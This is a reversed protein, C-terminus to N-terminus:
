NFENGTVITSLEAPEPLDDGYVGYRVFSITGIREIVFVAPLRLPNGTDKGHQYGDAYAQEIHKMTNADGLHAKDKACNVGYAEYVTGEADCIVTYFLRKSNLIEEAGEKSSNVVVLLTSHNDIFLKEQLRLRDLYDQTLVCAADRLFFLITRGQMLNRMQEQQGQLTKVRIDPAQCGKEIKKM